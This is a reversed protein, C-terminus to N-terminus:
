NFENNKKLRKIGTTTDIIFFIQKVVKKAM